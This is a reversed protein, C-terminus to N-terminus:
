KLEPLGIISRATNINQAHLGGKFIRAVPRYPSSNYRVMGRRRERGGGQEEEM